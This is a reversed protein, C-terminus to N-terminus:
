AIALSRAIQRYSAREDELLARLIYVDTEDLKISL